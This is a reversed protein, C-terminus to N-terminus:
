SIFVLLDSMYMDMPKYIHFEKESSMFVALLEKLFEEFNDFLQINIV